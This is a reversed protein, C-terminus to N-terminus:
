ISIYAGGSAGLTQGTVYSAADSLMFCVPLAVEDTTAVRGLAVTAMVRQKRTEDSLLHETMPTEVVGFSVANVRIGYRALERASSATMGILGAKAASYNVQGIVGSRGAESAINVIAGGQGKGDKDLAIWHKSVAQLCVFVGTLDVDIVDRWQDMTMKHIMAPKVIAANNVLGAVAGFRDASAAVMTDVADPDTIDLTVTMLEADPNEAALAELGEPRIDVATVAGGLELICEAIRRGIGQGAGTVIINKGTLSYRDKM